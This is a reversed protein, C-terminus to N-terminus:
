FQFSFGLSGGLGHEGRDLTILHRLDARLAFWHTLSYEVGGGFNFYASTHPDFEADDFDESLGGFGATVFPVLKQEPRFHYNLDAGYQYLTCYHDGPDRKTYNYGFLLEARINPTFNYGARVGWYLDADFHEEGNFIEPFGQGGAFPSLTFAGDRNEAMVPNATALLTIVLPLLLRAYM